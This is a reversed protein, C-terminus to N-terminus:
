AGHMFMVTVRGKPAAPRLQQKMSFWVSRSGKLGVPEVDLEPPAQSPDSVTRFFARWVGIDGRVLLTRMLTVTLEEHLCWGLPHRFGLARRVAVAICAAATISLLPAAVALRELGYRRHVTKIGRKIPLSFIPM